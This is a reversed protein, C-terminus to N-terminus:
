MHAYQNCRITFKQWECVFDVKTLGLHLNSWDLVLSQGYMINMTKVAVRGTQISQFFHKLGHKKTTRKFVPKMRCWSTTHLSIQACSRRAVPWRRLHLTVLVKVPVQFCYPRVQMACQWLLLVRFNVVMHYGIPSAMNRLLNLHLHAATLARKTELM